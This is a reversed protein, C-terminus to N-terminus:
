KRQKSPAPMAELESLRELLQNKKVQSASITETLRNIEIEISKREDAVGVQGCKKCKRPKSTNFTASMGTIDVHDFAGCCECQFEAWTKSRPDWEAGGGTFTRIYQM